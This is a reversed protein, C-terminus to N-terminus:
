SKGTQRAIAFTLVTIGAAGAQRLQQSINSVTTGTTFVDDIITIIKGTVREPERVRFAGELNRMREHRLLGTQPSTERVRAVARELVPLGIMEGLARALLVSQNFGRRRERAPHLPVPVLGRTRTFATESRFVEAMLSAMPRALWGARHYKLRHVADRLSEEYPGVARAMEFPRGLRCDPCFVPQEPEAPGAGLPAFAGCCPCVREVAYGALLKSCDGCVSADPSGDGCLPCVRRPPFVLDLAARLLDRFM